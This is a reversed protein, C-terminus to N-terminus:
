NAKYAGNAERFFLDPYNNSSFIIIIIVTGVLFM